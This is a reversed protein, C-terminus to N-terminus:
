ERKQDSLHQRCTHKLCIEPFSLHLGSIWASLSMVRIPPGYNAVAARQAGAVPSIKGLSNVHHRCPPKTRSRDASPIVLMTYIYLIAEKIRPRPTKLVSCHFDCFLLLRKLSQSNSVSFTGLYILKDCVLAKFCHHVHLLIKSVNWLACTVNSAGLEWPSWHQSYQTTM